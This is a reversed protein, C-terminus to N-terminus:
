CPLADTWASRSAASSPASSGPFSRGRRADLGGPSGPAVADAQVVYGTPRNVSKFTKSIQENNRWTLDLNTQAVLWGRRRRRGLLLVESRLDVLLLRLLLVDVTRGLLDVNRQLLSPRLQNELRGRRPILVLLVVVFLLALPGNKTAFIACGKRAM